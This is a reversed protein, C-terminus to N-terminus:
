DYSDSRENVLNYLNTIIKNKNKAYKICNYTGGASGDFYAIIENSNDVMYRNRYELKIPNYEGCPTKCKIYNDLTDVYTIKDAKNVQNNQRNVDEKKFWKSSQNKFPVAIEISIPILSYQKIKHCVEFSMQDFGLAGGCIFRLKDTTKLNTLVNKYIYDKLVKMIKQNKISNWNYGGLKNPRHGTFCITYEM